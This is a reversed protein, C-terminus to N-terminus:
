LYTICSSYRFYIFQNKISYSIYINSPRALNLADDILGAREVISFKHHDTKFQQIIKKWNEKDYNTRFFGLLDPNVLIWENSKVNITMDMQNRSFWIIDTLSSSSSSKFKLPISWIYNYPSKSPQGESDFLFQQQSIQIIQKDYDRIVEVYPYGMQDTWTSMIDALTTNLPLQINDETMQEGLAKWLDKQTATSYLHQSLYKSIGRNFTQDGMFNRMMRLLSSGKSYTIADFIGTLQDNHTIKMNVPHSFSIADNQMVALWRQSIFQEYLDWEPHIKDTNVFEM